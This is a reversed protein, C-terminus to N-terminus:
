STTSSRTSTPYRCMSGNALRRSPASDKVLFGQASSRVAVRDEEAVMDFIPRRLKAVSARLVDLYAKLAERGPAFGEIRHNYDEAIYEDFSSFDGDEMARFFRRITQKNLEWQDSM